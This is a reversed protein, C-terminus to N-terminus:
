RDAPSGPTPGPGPAARSPRRGTPAPSGRARAASVRVGTVGRGIVGRFAERYRRPSSGFRAQFCRYFHGLGSFGSALALDLIARETTRLDDAARDCRLHNLLTSPSTGYHKRVTRALHERTRGSWRALVPVDAEPPGEQWRRLAEDLWTPPPESSATVGRARAVVVERVVGAILWLHDVASPRAPVTALAQRLRDLQRHDLHVPRNDDWPWRDGFVGQRKWRALQPLRVAINVLTMGGSGAQLRHRDDRRMFQLHGPGILQERGAFRHRVGGRVVWFVEAFDAHTHEEVGGGEAYSTFGISVPGPTGHVAFRIADGYREM